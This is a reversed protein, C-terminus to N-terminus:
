LYFFLIIITIFAIIIAVTFYIFYKKIDAIFYFFLLKYKYNIELIIKKLYVFIYLFLM